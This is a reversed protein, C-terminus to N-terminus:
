SSADSVCACTHAADNYTLWRDIPLPYAFGIADYYLAEVFGVRLATQRPVKIEAREVVKGRCRCSAGLVLCVSVMIACFIFLSPWWGGVGGGGGSGIFANDDIYFCVNPLLIFANGKGRGVFCTRVLTPFLKVSLTALGGFTPLALYFPLVSLLDVIGYFGFVYRMLGDPSSSAASVVRAVYDLSFAVASLVELAGLATAAGSVEGDQGGGGCM